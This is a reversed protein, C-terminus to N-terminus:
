QRRETEDTYYTMRQPNLLFPTRRKVTLIRNFDIQPAIPTVPDKDLLESKREAYDSFRKFEAETDQKAQQTIGQQELLASSFPVGPVGTIKNELLYRFKTKM